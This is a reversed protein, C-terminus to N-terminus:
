CLLGRIFFFSEASHTREWARRAHELATKHQEIRHLERRQGHVVDDHQLVVGIGEGARQLDLARLFARVPGFRQAEGSRWDFGDLKFRFNFGGILELRGLLIGVRNRASRAAQRTPFGRRDM